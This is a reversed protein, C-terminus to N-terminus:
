LSAGVTSMDSGQPDLVAAAAAAMVCCPRVKHVTQGATRPNLESLLRGVTPVTEPDFTAAEEAAIPVCVQAAMAVTTLM